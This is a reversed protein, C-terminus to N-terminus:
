YCGESSGRFSPLMLDQLWTEMTVAPYETENVKNRLIDNPIWDDPERKSLQLNIPYDLILMYRAGSHFDRIQDKKYLGGVQLGAPALPSPNM